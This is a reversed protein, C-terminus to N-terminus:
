RTRGFRWLTEKLGQKEVKLELAWTGTYGQPWCFQSELPVSLTLNRLGQDSITHMWGAETKAILKYAVVCEQDAACNNSAGKGLPTIGLLPRKQGRMQEQIRYAFADENQAKTTELTNSTGSAPIESPSGSIENSSVSIENAAVPPPDSLFAEPQLSPCEPPETNFYVLENKRGTEESANAEPESKEPSEASGALLLAENGALSISSKAQDTESKNKQQLATAEGESMLIRKGVLLSTPNWFCTEAEGDCKKFTQDGPHEGKSRRELHLHPGTGCASLPYKGHVGVVQGQFLLDGVKLSPTDLHLYRWKAGSTDELIIEWGCANNVLRRERVVGNSLAISKRVSRFGLDWGIHPSSGGKRCICWQDTGVSNLAPNVFSTPPTKLIGEGTLNPTDTKKPSAAPAAAAPAQQPVPALPPPAKETEPVQGGQISQKCSILTVGLFLGVTLEIRMRARTKLKLLNRIPLSLRGM